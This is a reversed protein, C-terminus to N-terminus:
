QLNCCDASLSKTFMDAQNQQSPVHVLEISKDGVQERLYHYRLSIHKSRDHHVPNQSLLIAGMNDNYLTIPDSQPFGLDELLLRLWSAQKAADASSMYEAEATSLSVTPQRRARWSTLGGFTKFLYGTTSRRTDQCGGWDADAYGLIIRKGSESDYSLCLDSTGQM